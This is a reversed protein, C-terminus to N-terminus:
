RPSGASTAARRWTHLANALLFVGFGRALAEHPLSQAMWSALPAGLAAGAFLWPVLRGLVNGHRAHELAGAPATVLIVALSTGQAVQQSVGFLLTLAPVMLIGGGVGLFGALVGTAAGLALDAAITWAFPLDHARPEPARWLLRVAVLLLFAAFVRLLTARSTRAAWRAGLRATPISAVALLAATGWAVNGRLAYAALGALATAGITALSTGNAQHPTAAFFATLLPILVIGGGVGFLGGAFGAVLGALAARSREAGSM